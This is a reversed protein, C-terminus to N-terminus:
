EAADEMVGEAPARRGAVGRSQVQQEDSGRGKGDDGCWKKDDGCLRPDVIM